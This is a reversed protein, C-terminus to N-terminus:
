TKKDFVEPKTKTKRKFYSKKSLLLFFFFFFTKTRTNRSLGANKKFYFVPKLEIRNETDIQNTRKKAFIVFIQNKKYVTQNRNRKLIKQLFPETKLSKKLRLHTETQTQKELKFFETWNNKFFLRNQNFKNQWEQM